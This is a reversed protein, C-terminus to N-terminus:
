SQCGLRKSKFRSGLFCHVEATIDNGVITKSDFRYIFSFIWKKFFPEHKSKFSAHSINHYTDRHIIMMFVRPLTLQPNFTISSWRSLYSVLGLDQSGLRLCFGFTVSMIVSLLRSVVFRTFDERAFLQSFFFNKKKRPQARMRM